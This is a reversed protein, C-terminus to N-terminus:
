ALQFSIVDILIGMRFFNGQRLLRFTMDKLDRGPDDCRDLRAICVLRELRLASFADLTAGQNPAHELSGPHNGLQILVLM